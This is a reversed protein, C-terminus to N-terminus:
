TVRITVTVAGVSCRLWAVGITWRTKATLPADYLFVAPFFTVDAMPDAADKALLAKPAERPRPYTIRVLQYTSPVARLSKLTVAFDTNPVVPTTITVDEFEVYPNENVGRILQEFQRVLRPLESPAFSTLNGVLDSKPM